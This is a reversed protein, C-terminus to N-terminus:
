VERGRAMRRRRFAVIGSAVLVGTAPEPVPTGVIRYQLAGENATQPNVFFQSAPAYASFQNSFFDVGRTVGGATVVSFPLLRNWSDTPTGADLVLFFTGVGLSLNNFLVVNPGAPGSYSTQAIQNAITTGAGLSNVLYAQVPSNVSGLGVDISVGILPVTTAFAVALKDERPGNPTQIPGLVYGGVRPGTVELLTIPSAAVTVASALLAALALVIYRVLRSANM